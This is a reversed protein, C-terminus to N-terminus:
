ALTITFRTVSSPPLTCQVVKGSVTATAKRTVVANPQEFTNHAHVDEGGLVEAEAATASAGGRLAVPARSFFFASGALASTKLFNRRQM